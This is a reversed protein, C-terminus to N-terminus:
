ADGDEQASSGVIEVFLDELSPRSVSLEELESGQEVAWGTLGTCSQPRRTRKM